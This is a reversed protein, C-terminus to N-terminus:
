EAARLHRGRARGSIIISGIIRRANKSKWQGRGSKEGRLRCAGDGGMRCIGMKVAGITATGEKPTRRPEMEYSRMESVRVSYVRKERGRSRRLRATRVSWRGRGCRSSRPRAVVAFWIKDLWPVRFFFFSMCVTASYVPSLTTACSM